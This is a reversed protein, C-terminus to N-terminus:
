LQYELLGQFQWTCGTGRTRQAVSTHTQTRIAIPILLSLSRTLQDRSVTPQNDIYQLQVQFMKEREQRRLCESTGSEGSM